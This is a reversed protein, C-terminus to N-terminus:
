ICVLFVASVILLVIAHARVATRPLPVVGAIQRLIYLSMVAGALTVLPPLARLTGLNPTVWDAPIHDALGVMALLGPLLDAGRLIFERFYLNFFGALGLPLYAYGFQVLHTGAARRGGWASALCVAALFGTGVVLFTLLGAMPAGVADVLSASAHVLGHRALWVPLSVALVMAVMVLSLFGRLGDWRQQSLLHQWPIRLDLRVAKQPCIKVCSLCLICDQSMAASSPHLGMPCVPTRVCDHTQCQSMCVNTNGRLIVPSLMAYHSVLKGLPCLHQCWVRRGYLWKVLAIALIITLLLIGTPRARHFMDMAHEAWVILVLGAVGIWAGYRKLFAPPSDEKARNPRIAGGLTPLPCYGCWGRASFATSLLLYPWWVAWVVLNALNDDQPGFLLYLLLVAAVPVTVIRLGRPFWPHQVLKSIWGLKLLNFTQRASFPSFDLFVHQETIQPGECIAVAREIVDGLEHMNLPWEYDVLANLAEPSFGHIDKRVKRAFHERFREALVPIDQKRKRLPKARLTTISLAKFLNADFRGHSVRDELDESATALVRVSTHRPTSEGMRQCLGSQVYQVLRAQVSPALYEVNHLILTGGDALELLGLRRSKAYPTAGPEHGILAAEQALAILMGSHEDEGDMAEEPLVPPPNACNLYLVPRERGRRGLAILRAVTSRGTGSAGLILVSDETEALEDITRNLGRAWKTNGPFSDFPPRQSHNLITSIIERSQLHAQQQQVTTAGLRQALLRLLKNKIEPDLAVLEEFDSQAIELVTAETVAKVSASRPEGTLLAMEGFVDGASLTAVTYEAGEANTLVVAVTGRLLMFMSEGPNGRQVITTNPPFTRRRVRGAAAEAVTDPVGEFLAIGQIDALCTM